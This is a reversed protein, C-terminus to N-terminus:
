RKIVARGISEYYFGAGRMDDLDYLNRGDFIVPKALLKKIKGFDPTGFEAWNTAIILADAGKLVEYPDGAFSLLKNGARAKRVNDMAQPDFAVVNAGASTLEDAITLAPSERIDDTNDKFALGWLAFTKGRLKGDYYASVKKPIVRKQRENAQITAAVIGLEIGFDEGTHVLAETDKPFCSGGYGAGAYLFQRGIRSDTGVGLRVNGIDAGAAECLASLENMFSIKTALLANSAYKIIEASAEDTVILSEPTRTIFPRYLKRMLTAARESSTGIVVREPHLFDDVAQGERLFEPNSVVDFDVKAGVAVEAHVLKSTGVPVTSKDIVVTYHKLLPGLNRAVGKVYSLDASGGEGPPTPLALFIAAAKTSDALETSFHLRGEAINREVIDSLGPEYIPIKGSRLMEIKKADVDICMVNNGREALCAGTVLGVYGTGVVALEM